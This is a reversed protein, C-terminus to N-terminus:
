IKDTESVPSYNSRMRSVRELGLRQREAQVHKVYDRNKLLPCVIDSATLDSLSDRQEPTMNKVLYGVERQAQDADLVRTGISNWNGPIRSSLMPQSSLNDVIAQVGKISQKPDETINKDIVYQPLHLLYLKEDSPM